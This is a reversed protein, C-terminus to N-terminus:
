LVEGIFLDNEERWQIDNSELFGRINGSEDRFAQLDRSVFRNFGKIAGWRTQYLFESGGLLAFARGPPKLTKYGVVVVM